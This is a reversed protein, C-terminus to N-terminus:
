VCVLENVSEAFRSNGIWRVQMHKSQPLMGHEPTRDWQLSLKMMMSDELQSSWWLVPSFVLHTGTNLSGKKGSGSRGAYMELGERQRVCTWDTSEVQPDVGCPHHMSKQVFM